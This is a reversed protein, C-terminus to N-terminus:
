GDRPPRETKRLECYQAFERHLDMLEVIKSSRLDPPPTNFAWGQIVGLLRLARARMNSAEASHDGELEHAIDRM